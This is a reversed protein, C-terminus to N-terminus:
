PKAGQMLDVPGGEEVPATVVSVASGHVVKVQATEPRAPPPARRITRVVPRSARPPPTADAAEDKDDDAAAEVEAKGILALGIRSERAVATIRQADAPKLAITVLSAPLAGEVEAGMFQDVGLVLVNDILPRASFAEPGTKGPQPIYSILDVRDGPLVFGSVNTVNTVSISVARFGEPIDRSLMRRPATDGIKSAMLPEGAMLPAQAIRPAGSASLLESESRLSGVPALEVPWDVSKVQTALVPEGVEINEELVLVSVTQVPAAASVERVAQPKSEPGDAQGSRLIVFALIGLVVSLGLSIAPLYKMM